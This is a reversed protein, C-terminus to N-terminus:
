DRIRGIIGEKDELDPFIFDIVEKVAEFDGDHAILDDGIIRAMHVVTNDLMGLLGYRRLARWEQPSLEEGIAKKKAATFLASAFTTGVMQAPFSFAYDWDRKNNWASPDEEALNGIAPLALKETWFGMMGTYAVSDLMMELPRERWQEEYWEDQGRLMAKMYGITVSAMVAASATTMRSRFFATNADQSFGRNAGALTARLFQAMVSRGLSISKREAFNVDEQWGPVMMMNKEVAGDMMMGVAESLEDQADASLRATPLEEWPIPNSGYKAKLEADLRDAQPILLVIETHGLDKGMSRTRIKTKKYSGERVLTALEKIQGRNLTRQIHQVLGIQPHLNLDRMLDAYPRGQEVGDLLEDIRLILGDQPRFLIENLTLFSFHRNVQDMTTMLSMRAVGTRASETITSLSESAMEGTSRGTEVEDFQILTANSDHRRNVMSGPSESFTEMNDIIFNIKARNVSGDASRLSTEKMARINGFLSPIAQRLGGHWLGSAWARSMVRATEFLMTPGTTTLTGAQTASIISRKVDQESIGAEINDTLGVWRRMADHQNNADINARKRIAESVDMKNAYGNAYSQIQELSNNLYVTLKDVFSRGDELAIVQGREIANKLEAFRHFLPVFQSQEVASLTEGGPRGRELRHLVMMYDTLIEAAQYQWATSHMTALSREIDLRWVGDLDAQSRLEALKDKPLLGALRNNYSNAISRAVGRGEVGGTMAAALDRHSMMPSASDTMKGFIQLVEMPSTGIPKGQSIRLFTILQPFTINDVDLVASASTRHLKDGAKMIGARSIEGDARFRANGAGLMGFNFARQISKHFSKRVRDPDMEAFLPSRIVRNVVFAIDDDAELFSIMDEASKFRPLNKDAFYVRVEEMADSFLSHLQRTKGDWILQPGHRVTKGQVGDLVDSAFREFILRLAYSQQEYRQAITNKVREGEVRGSWRGEVRAKSKFNAEVMADHLGTVIPNPSFQWRIGSNIITSAMWSIPGRRRGPRDAVGIKNLIKSAVKRSQDSELWPYLDEADRIKIKAYQPLLEDPIDTDIKSKSQRVRQPSSSREGEPVGEPRGGGLRGPSADPIDAKAPLDVKAVEDWVGLKKLAILIDQLPTTRVFGVTESYLIQQHLKVNMVSGVGLSGPNWRLYPTRSNINDLARSIRDGVLEATEESAIVESRIMADRIERLQSLTEPSERLADLADKKQASSLNDVQDALLGDEKNVHDFATLAEERTRYIPRETQQAYSEIAEDLAKSNRAELQAKQRQLNEMRNRANSIITDDGLDSARNFELEAQELERNLQEIGDALEDYDDTFRAMVIEEPEPQASRKLHFRERELSDLRSGLGAEEEAVRTLIPDDEALGEAEARSEQLKRLSADIDAMETDIESIRSQIEPSLEPARDMRNGEALSDLVEANRKAQEDRVSGMDDYFEVVEEAETRLTDEISRKIRGDAANLSQRVEQLAKAEQPTMGGLNRGYKSAAGLIGSLVGDAVSNIGVNIVADGLDQEGAAMLMSEAFVSINLGEYMSQGVVQKTTGARRALQAARYQKYAQGFAKSGRAATVSARGGTLASRLGFGGALALPDTVSGGVTGIFGSVAGGTELRKQMEASMVAYATDNLLEGVFEAHDYHGNGYNDLIRRGGEQSLFFDRNDNFFDDVTYDSSFRRILREGEPRDWDIIFANDVNASGLIPNLIQPIERDAWAITRGTINYLWSAAQWDGALNEFFGIDPDLDADIPSIGTEFEDLPDYSYDILGGFAYDRYANLYNDVASNPVARMMAQMDPSNTIDPIRTPM